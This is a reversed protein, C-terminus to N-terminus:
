RDLQHGKVLGPEVTLEPAKGAHSLDLANQLHRRHGPNKGKRDTGGDNRAQTERRPPDRQRDQQQVRQESGTADRQGAERGPEKGRPPTGTLPHGIPTLRGIPDQNGSSTGCAHHDHLFEAGIRVEVQRRDTKQIVVRRLEAVMEGIKRHEAREGRQDLDGRSVPNVFQDDCHRPRRALHNTVQNGRCSRRLDLSAGNGAHEVDDRATDGHTRQTPDLDLVQQTAFRNGGIEVGIRRTAAPRVTRTVPAPPEIPASSQRCIAPNFGPRM